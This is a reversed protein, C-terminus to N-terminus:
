ADPRKPPPRLGASPLVESAQVMAQALEALKRRQSRATDRLLHFADERSLQQHVMLIGTAINICRDGDLAQQLQRQGTRLGHLEDARALAAEITPILQPLDLPKVAYSLAGCAVAQEVNDADGYASLMIFPIRDLERLRQALYLGGCGPMSVDVIALDPRIGGALLEQAEEASEAATVRYGAQELGECLTSLVVRDDDVLM